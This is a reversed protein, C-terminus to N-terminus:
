NRYEIESKKKKGHIKKLDTADLYSFDHSILDNIKPKSNHLFEQTIPLQSLQRQKKITTFYMQCFSDYLGTDKSNGKM